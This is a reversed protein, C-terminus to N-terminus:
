RGGLREFYGPWDTEPLWLLAVPGSSWFRRRRCSRWLRGVLHDANELGEPNDPVNGFRNDAQSDEGNAIGEVVKGSVDGHGLVPM